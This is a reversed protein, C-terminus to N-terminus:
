DSIGQCINAYVLFLLDFIKSYAYLNVSLKTNEYRWSAHWGRAIIQRRTLLESSLNSKWKSVKTWVHLFEESRQSLKTDFLFIRLIYSFYSFTWTNVPFFEVLTKTVNAIYAFLRSAYINYACYSLFSITAMVTYIRHIFSLQQVTLILTAIHYCITKTSREIRNTSIYLVQNFFLSLRSAALLLILFWRDRILSPNFAILRFPTYCHGHLIPELFFKIIFIVNLVVLENSINQKALPYILM